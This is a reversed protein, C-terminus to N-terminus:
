SGARDGGLHARQSVVLPQALVVNLSGWSTGPHESASPGAGDALPSVLDHVLRCIDAPTARM